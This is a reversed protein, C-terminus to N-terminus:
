IIRVSRSLGLCIKDYAEVQYLYIQNKIWVIFDEVIGARVLSSWGEPDWQSCCNIKWCINFQIKGQFGPVFMYLNKKLIRAHVLTFEGELDRCLCYYIRSWLGQIFSYIRGWFGLVFLFMNERELTFLFSNERSIQIHISNSEGKSNWRSCSHIWGQIFVYICEGQFELLSSHM